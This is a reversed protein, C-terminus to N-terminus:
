CVSCCTSVLLAGTEKHITKWWYLLATSVPHKVHQELSDAYIRCEPRDVAIVGCKPGTADLNRLLIQATSPHWMGITFGCQLLYSFIFFMIPSLEIWYYYASQTVTLPLQTIHTHGVRVPMMRLCKPQWLNSAAPLLDEDETESALLVKCRQSNQM